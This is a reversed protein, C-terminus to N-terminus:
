IKKTSRICFILSLLTAITWGIPWSMWIGNTQFQTSLVFALVVRLLLDTFTAVMFQNMLTKGRLVGDCILKVSILFYFPSVIRLFTNGVEMALASSDQDMFLTLCQSGGLFYLLFFIAAIALSFGIGAKWGRLIRAEKRAGMNQATFGSMGNGLTTFGTIAFTNLKIAASYGAIVSSGYGNVLQQIFLNGVSVFSQQLISPVAIAAVASLMHWSFLVPRTDDQSAKPADTDLTTDESKGLRKLRGLLVFMAALGAITQAIFTAWAVGSVGMHLGAVFYWDLFINGISSCILFILPTRSDGLSNFIGTVVNYLFLFIFGAIYIKLYLDSDSFINEPTRLLRMFTPSLLIGFLTLLASLCFGSILITSVATKLRNYMRAGFLQSVVVTCGIQCGVAVAMFLMTIAYSAGVAALADEGAFKGAIVSDAINYLQQFAVGIFMPLTYRIFVTGERGQTLDQNM